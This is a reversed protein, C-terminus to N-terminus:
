SNLFKEVRRSAENLGTEGPLWNLQQDRQFWTQQRKALQKTSRSIEACLKTEDILGSLASVVERYGVSRLPSWESLRQDVLGRVEEILGKQLMLRTRREIRETLIAREWFPAVKLLDHPFEVRSREFDNQIQTISKGQSRILEVARGIRYHDALHLRAGYEPDVQQVELLLRLPGKVENMEDAVQRKVGEPVPLVPYMGKEIAMFYFGTGGVVFIPKEEPLNELCSNFDRAFQGATMEDPPAVYDLLYHPVLAREESTPKAAGINVKQYTQISDCNVIVGQFKQALQLAWESKGSATSGMVFIVKHKKSKM